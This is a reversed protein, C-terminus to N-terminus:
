RRCPGGRNLYRTIELGYSSGVASALASGYNGSELLLNVDAQAEEVPYKVTELGTLSTTAAALPSGFAGAQLQVNVEAQANEVLYRVVKLGKYSPDAAAAALPSGFYGTEMRANVEAKADEVLYRVIALDGRSAAATLANGYMGCSLPLDVDAKGEEILFKTTEFERCWAAAALCSGYIDSVCDQNVSVGRSILDACLPVCGAQAAITLLSDGKENKQFPDFKTNDFWGQLVKYLSFWAIAFIPTKFPGLNRRQVQFLDIFDFEGDSVQAGWQIFFPSSGELSGLFRKLGSSQSTM